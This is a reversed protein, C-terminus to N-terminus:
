EQGITYKVGVVVPVELFLHQVSRQSLRYDFQLFKTTISIQKSLDYQVNANLGVRAFYDYLVGRKYTISSDSGAIIYGREEDTYHFYQLYASPFFSIRKGLIFFREYFIGFSTAIHRITGVRTWPTGGGSPQLSSMGTVAMSQTSSSFQLGIGSKKGIMVGVKGELLFPHNNLESPDNTIRFFGIGPNIYFSHSPAQSKVAICIFLVVISLISYKM